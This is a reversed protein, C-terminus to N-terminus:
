CVLPLEVRFRTGVDLQSWVRVEGRLANVLHKVIALGLGTGAADSRTRDIRYFREFVRDLDSAPIGVGDDEVEIWGTGDDAGCRVTVHGGEPTYKVANELLNGVVQRLAEREGCVKLGPAAALDIGISRARAEDELQSAAERLLPEVEVPELELEGQQSEIRALSLLDSVLHSLREVHRDIKRLFRENNDEDQLAGDLLTEVYGRISTLPTKLEHSVNAVFDRRIRELRRLETIDHLVVVIGGPSGRGVIPTSHADLTRETGGQAVSIESHAVGGHESASRLLQGLGAVRFRGLLREGRVDELSAGLLRLAADNCFVIRGEEDAAIVGEVMAALMAGLRAGEESIRALRRASEDALRNFANALVGFEDDSLERVRVDDRGSALERAARTIETLPGTIRRAALVGVFLAVVAGIAAGLIVTRGAAALRADAVELPMAARVVGVLRGDERVPRAVYLLLEGVTASRRRAVGTQGDLAARMEKRGGHNEMGAADAATDAVVTGDPLMWTLRQNTERALGRLYALAVDDPRPDLHTATFPELSRCTAELMRELSASTQRRVDRHLLLGVCASAVLAVAAHSLALKWFFRSRFPSLRRSM